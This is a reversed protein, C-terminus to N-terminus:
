SNILYIELQLLDQKMTVRPLIHKFIYNSLHVIIACLVFAWRFCLINNGGMHGVSDENGGAAASVDMLM